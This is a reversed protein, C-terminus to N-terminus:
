DKKEQAEHGGYCDSSWIEVGEQAPIDKCWKAWVVRGMHGRSVLGM